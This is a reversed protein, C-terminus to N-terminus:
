HIFMKALRSKHIYVAHYPCLEHCCLCKICKAYDIVPHKEGKHYTIAQVPCSKVCVQCLRCNDKFDPYFEFKTRLFKKAISPVHNMMRSSFKVIGLQVNPFVFGKWEVPIEIQSPLLGEEHLGQWVVPIKRWDFGMMSCAVYDLALANESSFVVGFKRPNGAAPGEGEMGVIGDMVHLDIKNKVSQYLKTLLSAFQGTEPYLKHFESKKLGPILGYLNKVAGTYRMMGHTKYKSISIVGDVELFAKSIPYKFGNREIEMVGAEAFNILKVPYRNALESMGTMDWVKQQSVTGGSSDGIIVLKKKELLIQIIAELLIPNTTVAKEPEFAGLLNPKLLITNKNKLKKWLGNAEFLESFYRYLEEVHYGDFKQITVKL